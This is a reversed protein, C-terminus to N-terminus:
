RRKSEAKEDLWNALLWAGVAPVFSLLAWLWNGINSKSFLGTVWDLWEATSGLTASKGILSVLIIGLVIVLWVYSFARLVITLM